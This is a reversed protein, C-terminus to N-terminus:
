ITLCKDTFRFVFRQASDHNLLYVYQFEFISRFKYPIDFASHQIDSHRLVSILNIEFHFRGFHYKGALSLIGIPYFFFFTSHKQASTHADSCIYELHVNLTRTCSCDPIVSETTKVVVNEHVYNQLKISNISQIRNYEISNM